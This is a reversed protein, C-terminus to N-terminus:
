IFEFENVENVSLAKKCCVKDNTILVILTMDTIAMIDSPTLKM